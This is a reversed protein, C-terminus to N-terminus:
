RVRLNGGLNVLRLLVDNVTRDWTKEFVIRQILEARNCNASASLFGSRSFEVGESPRQTNILRYNDEGEESCEHASAYPLKGM